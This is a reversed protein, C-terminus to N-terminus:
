DSRKDGTPNVLEANRLLAKAQLATMLYNSGDDFVKVIGLFLISPVRNVKDVTADVFERDEKANAM